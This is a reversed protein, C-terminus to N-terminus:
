PRTTPTPAVETLQDAFRTGIDEFFQEGSDTSAYITVACCFLLCAGLVGLVIWLWLRRKKKPPELPEDHSTWTFPESGPANPNFQPLITSFPPPPPPPPNLSSDASITRLDAGCEGCFRSGEPNETGCNPCTIM